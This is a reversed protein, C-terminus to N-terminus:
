PLEVRLRTGPGSRGPIGEGVDLHGGVGALRERLGTLGSGERRGRLGHGDDTVELWTPGWAVDVRQAGSHRIVNTTAERLAWAVTIRHAPDVIDYDDPVSAEIGADRLAAVAAEREDSLRTIRLGSVTARIEALSQRTLSRIAAIEGKARAPDIDVLREALDAKLSVVTLSHGLVDHVDRAVRDREAAVALTRQLAERREDGIIMRRLLLGFSGILAPLLLLPWLEDLSDTVVLTVAGAVTVLVVGVVASRFPFGFAALSALFATVGLVEAGIIPWLLAMILVLAVFGGYVSVLRTRTWGGHVGIQSRMFAFIYIAAFAVLLLLGAVRVAPQGVTTDFVSSAPFGLFVLWVAALLWGHRAWPDPVGVDLDVDPCCPGDARTM